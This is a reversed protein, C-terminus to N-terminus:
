SIKRSGNAAAPCSEGSKMHLTADTTSVDIWSLKRHESIWRLLPTFVQKPADRGLLLDLHGHGHVQVTTSPAGWKTAAFRAADPPCLKDDSGCIVLLPAEADVLAESWDLVGGRSTPVGAEVWGLVQQLLGTPLDAGAYAMVGRAREPHAQGPSFVGDLGDVDLLPAALRAVTRLPVQFRAPMLSLARATRRIGSSRSFRMPAALAVVSALREPRRTAWVLGLQGGLAHGIYHLRDTDADRCVAEAAAPLDREVIADFDVAERAGPHPPIADADARHALLYVAFGAQRLADVLTDHRGYRFADPGLGLGHVVLVPEGPAGPISPVAFIPASWGDGAQYYLRRLPKPRRMELYRGRSAPHLVRWAGASAIRALTTTFRKIPPTLRPRKLTPISSM